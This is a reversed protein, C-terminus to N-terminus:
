SYSKVMKNDVQTGDVYQNTHLNTTYKHIYLFHLTCGIYITLLQTGLVVDYPGGDYDVM